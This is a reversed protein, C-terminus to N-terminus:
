SNEQSGLEYLIDGTGPLPRLPRKAITEIRQRLADSPRFVFLKRDDNPLQPQQNEGVLRLSVAPKLEHGMAALRTLSDDTMVVSKQAQNIISSVEVIYRTNEPGKNWWLKAPVSTMNSIVGLTLVIAFASKWLDRRGNESRTLLVSFTYAVALLIGIFIPVYYRPVGSVRGGNIVDSSLYTLAPTAILVWPFLWVSRDTSKYLFYLAYITLALCALIIPMLPLIAKMSTGSGIGIDFFLRSINGVWMSLMSTLSFRLRWINSNYVMEETRGANHLLLLSWPIFTAISLAAAVLYSLFRQTVKFRETVLVYFGQGVLVLAFFLHTYLGLILTLTYLLWGLFTPRRLSRLLLASSVLVLLGWFSYARAEQSYVVFFPSIALLSTGIKATFHSQFLEMCLWYMAPISLIGVVASFSRLAALSGGFVTTWLKLIVFYLPPLHPDEIAIGSVVAPIGKDANPTFYKEVESFSIDQGTYLAQHAQEGTYGSVRLATFAEDDWFVKRGLNVGRFFVGLVILAIMLFNIWSRPNHKM